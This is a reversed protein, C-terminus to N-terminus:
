CSNHLTLCSPASSLLPPPQKKPYTVWLSLGLHSPIALTPVPGYTNCHFSFNYTHSHVTHHTVISSPISSHFHFIRCTIPLFMACTDPRQTSPTTNLLYMSQTALGRGGEKGSTVSSETFCSIFFHRYYFHLLHSRAYHHHAHLTYRPTNYLPHSHCGCQFSHHPRSIILSPHLSTHRHLLSCTLATPSKKCICLGADGLRLEIANIWKRRVHTHLRGGFVLLYWASSWM